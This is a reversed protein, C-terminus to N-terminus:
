PPRSWATRLGAGQRIDGWGQEGDGSSRPVPSFCADGSAHGYHARVRSRVRICSRTALRRAPVPHSAGRPTALATASPQPRPVDNTHLTSSGPAPGPSLLAPRQIRPRPSATPCRPSSPSRVGKRPHGGTQLRGLLSLCCHYLCAPVQSYRQASAVVQASWESSRGTHAFM